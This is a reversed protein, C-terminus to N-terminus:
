HYRRTSTTSWPSRVVVEAKLRAVTVGPEGVDDFFLTRPHDPLLLFGNDSFHGLFAGPDLFVHPAPASCNVVVSLQDGHASFELKIQPDHLTAVKMKSPYHHATLMTVGAVAAAVSALESAAETENAETPLEAKRLSANATL